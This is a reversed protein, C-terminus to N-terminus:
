KSSLNSHKLWNRQKTQTISSSRAQARARQGPSLAPGATCLGLGLFARAWTKALGSLARYGFATCFQNKIYQTLSKQARFSINTLGSGSGTSFRLARGSGSLELGTGARSLLINIMIRCAAVRFFSGPSIVISVPSCRWRTNTEQM